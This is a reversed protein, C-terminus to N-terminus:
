HAQAEVIEDITEGEGENFPLRELGKAREIRLAQEDLVSRVLEEDVITAVGARLVHQRNILNPTEKSSPQMVVKTCECELVVFVKDGRHMLRPEVAMAESLGDGANTIAISVRVVTDGEFTGLDVDGVVAAKSQKKSSAMGPLTRM